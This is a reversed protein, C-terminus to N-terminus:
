DGEIEPVFGGCWSDVGKSETKPNLYCLGYNSNIKEFCDPHGQIEIEKTERLFFRCLKCRAEIYIPKGACFGTQKVGILYQLRKM